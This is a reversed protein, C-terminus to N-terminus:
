ALINKNEELHRAIFNRYHQLLELTMKGPKGNGIEKNDVKTVPVIERTSSTIFAEDAAFLDAPYFNNESCEIKQENAIKLVAERTIGRLLGSSVPPTMLKSKKVIWINNTTGETLQGKANLMLADYAKSEKAQLYAMVNNLYNGSKINPDMAEVSNRQVQAIILSVGQSYWWQPKEKEERAIIVLNNNIAEGPDLGVDSEGRTLVIRFYANQCNLAKLTKNIENKLEPRSILVPLGILGASNWLRDLHEELFLPVGNHTRTVEYVSDGLLFGRDLVSIKVDEPKGVQGNLNVVYESKM